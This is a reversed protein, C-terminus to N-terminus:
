IFLTLFEESKEIFEESKEIFEESKEIFTHLQVKIDFHFRLKTCKLLLYYFM